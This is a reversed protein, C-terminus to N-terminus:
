IIVSERHKIFGYLTRLRSKPTGRRGYMLWPMAEKMIVWRKCNLDEVLVKLCKTQRQFSRELIREMLRKVESAFFEENHVSFRDVM